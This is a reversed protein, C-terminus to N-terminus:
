RIFTNWSNIGSVFSFIGVVVLLTGCILFIIMSIKPYKYLILNSKNIASSGMAITLFTLGIGTNALGIGIQNLTVETHLNLTNGYAFIASSTFFLLGIILAMISYIPVRKQYVILGVSVSLALITVGTFEAVLALDLNIYLCIGLLGLPIGLFLFLAKGIAVWSKASNSQGSDVAM